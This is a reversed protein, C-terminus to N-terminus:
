RNKLCPAASTAAAAMLEAKVKPTLFSSLAPLWSKLGGGRGREQLWACMRLPRTQHKGVTLRVMSRQLEGRHMLKLTHLYCGHM